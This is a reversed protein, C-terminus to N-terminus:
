VRARVIFQIGTLLILPLFPNIFFSLLIKGIGNIDTGFVRVVVARVHAAMTLPNPQGSDTDTVALEMAEQLRDDQELESQFKDGYERLLDAIM